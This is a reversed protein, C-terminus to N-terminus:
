NIKLVQYDRALQDLVPHGISSIEGQQQNNGAVENNLQLILQHTQSSQQARAINGFLCIVALFLAIRPM